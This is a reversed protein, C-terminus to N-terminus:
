LWNKDPLLSNSTVVGRRPGTAAWGRQKARVPSCSPQAGTWVLHERNPKLKHVKFALPFSTDIPKKPPSKQYLSKPSANNHMSISNWNAQFIPPMGVDIANDIYTLDNVDGGFLIGRVEPNEFDRGIDHCKRGLAGWSLTKRFDRGRRRWVKANGEIGMKCMAKVLRYFVFSDWQRTCRFPGRTWGADGLAASAAATGSNERRCDAGDLRHRVPENSSIDAENRENEGESEDESENEIHCFIIM